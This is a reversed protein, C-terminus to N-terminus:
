WPTWTTTPPGPPPWGLNDRLTGALIEAEQDVHGIAARLEPLALRPSTGGTWRSRAARPSTSRELLAFLTTKGTGVAGRHRDDRRRAPRLLPRPPGLPQRRRHRLPVVRRQLGGLGRRRGPPSPPQRRVPKPEVPLAQVERLRVVAALGAQLQSVGNVLATIPEGLLLLYLLFAILSSM